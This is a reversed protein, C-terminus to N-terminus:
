YGHARHSTSGVTPTVHQQSRSHAEHGDDSSGRQVRIGVQEKCVHPYM